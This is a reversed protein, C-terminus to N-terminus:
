SEGEDSREAPIPIGRGCEKFERINTNDRYRKKMWAREASIPNMEM